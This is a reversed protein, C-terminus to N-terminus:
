AHQVEKKKKSQVPRVERVAFFMTCGICVACFLAITRALNEAHVFYVLRQATTLFPSVHAGNGYLGGFIGSANCFGEFVVLSAVIVITARNKVGALMFGIGSCAFVATLSINSVVDPAFTRITLFMNEISAATAAVFICILVANRNRGNQVVQTGLADSSQVAVRQAYVRKATRASQAVPANSGEASEHAAEANDSRLRARHAYFSRVKLGTQECWEQASIEPNQQLLLMPSIKEQQM